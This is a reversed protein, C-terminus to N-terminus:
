TLLRLFLLCFSLLLQVQILYNKKKKFEGAEKLLLLFYSDCKKGRFSLARFSCVEVPKINKPWGKFFWYMKQKEVHHELLEQLTCIVIKFCCEEFDM